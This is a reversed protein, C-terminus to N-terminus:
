RVTAIEVVNESAENIIALVEGLFSPAFVILGVFGFAITFSFGVAWINLQPAIKTLLGFTLQSLLAVIVLPAAIRIGTELMRQGGEVILRMFDPRFLLSGPPFTYFSAGLARLVIHHTETAFFVM